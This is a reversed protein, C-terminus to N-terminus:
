NLTREVYSFSVEFIESPRPLWVKLFPTLQKHVLVKQAEPTVNGDPEASDQEKSGKPAPTVDRM